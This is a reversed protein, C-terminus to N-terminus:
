KRSRLPPCNVIYILADLTENVKTRIEEIDRKKSELKAREDTSLAEPGLHQLQGLQTLADNLSLEAAFIPACAPATKSKFPAASTTTATIVTTVNPPVAANACFNHGVSLFLTALSIKAFRKTPNYQM